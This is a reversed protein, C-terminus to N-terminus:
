LRALILELDSAHRVVGKPACDRQEGCVYILGKRPHVGYHQHASVVIAADLPEPSNVRSQGGIAERM